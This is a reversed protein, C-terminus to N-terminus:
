LSVILTEKMQEIPQEFIASFEIALCTEVRHFTQEDNLSLKKGNEEKEKKELLIGKLMQLLKKCDCSKIIDKFEKERLKDNKNYLGTLSPLENMLQKANEKSLISRMPRNTNNTKVYLTSTPNTLPKLYYYIDDTDIFSPTGISEIKCVESNGYVIVDNIQYM